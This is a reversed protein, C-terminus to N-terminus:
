CHSKVRTKAIKLKKMIVGPKPVVAKMLFYTLNARNPDPRPKRSLM